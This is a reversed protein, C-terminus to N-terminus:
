ARRKERSSGQARSPAARLAADLMEHAHALGAKSDAGAGLMRAIEAVRDDDEVAEVRSSTKGRSASKSVVLHHDAYAAVQALHTITLVQRDAGLRQMMQGVTQAVAGGVGADVEDFILTDHAGLESTCVAIALAIRSLEGGSAVKALPRPSSGAHGAVRFEVAHLGYAQPEDLPLLAVEFRGGAMGLGQMAETVAQALQPAAAQRAKSVAEAEANFVKKAAVEAAQLAQLDSAADLGQLQDRWAMWTAHLEQPAVRFKRALSVWSALREDLSQLAGPDLDTHNLVGSLTHEVDQLQAQASTLVEVANALAPDYAAVGQLQHLAASLQRNASGEDGACLALAQQAADIISQAHGLRTHDQNLQEWEHEAPSLKDVESIQWQLRDRQESLQAANDQALSLRQKAERWAAWAGALPATDIRGYADLLARVADPRTLSQWAHQGHIDVLADALERLQTLTASRGNIWARSKGQADVQRRLLLEDEPEGEVKFGGDELWAAVSACRTPDLEFEASVEARAAGERVVVADARSGLALQLADILISKGAGTEGTLATYGRDLDLELETVIAVDRLSLRRLM